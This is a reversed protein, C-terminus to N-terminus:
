YTCESYKENFVDNFEILDKVFRTLQLIHKTSLPYSDLSSRGKRFFINSELYTEPHIIPPYTDILKKFTTYLRKLKDRKVHMKNEM